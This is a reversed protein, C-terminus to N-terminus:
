EASNDLIQQKREEFIQRAKELLSFTVEPQRLSYTTNETTVEHAIIAIMSMDSVLLSNYVESVDDDLNCLHWFWTDGEGYNFTQIEDITQNGDSNLTVFYMKHLSLSQLITNSKMILYVGDPLVPNGSVNDIDATFDEVTEDNALLKM